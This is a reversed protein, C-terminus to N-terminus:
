PTITTLNGTGGNHWIIGSKDDIIWAMGIEDLHIGMTEYDKTSANISKLSKHCETFYPHDSLQMQAYSLMDTIDSTIAGAALYADDSKRDWYNGLDGDQEFIKISTLGLENQAFIIPYLKGEAPLEKGNEGYVRWSVQGGKVIGVTICADENDKTTYELVEAFSLEPIKSIQYKGYCMPGIIALTASIIVAIVIM